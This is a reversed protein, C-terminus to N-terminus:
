TESVHARDTQAVRDTGKIQEACLDLLFQMDERCAQLFEGLAKIRAMRKVSAETLRYGKSHEDQYPAWEKNNRGLDLVDHYIDLANTTGVYMPHDPNYIWPAGSVTSLRDRIEKLRHEIEEM